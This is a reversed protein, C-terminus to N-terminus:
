VTIKKKKKIEALLLKFFNSFPFHGLAPYRVRNKLTQFIQCKYM